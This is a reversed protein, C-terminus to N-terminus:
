GSRAIQNQWNYFYRFFTATVAEPRVIRVAISLEYTSARSASVQVESAVGDDIMWQLAEGAFEEARAPLNTVFKGRGLLWLKSGIYDPNTDEPDARDAWWGERSGDADPLVDESDARRNSFLSITVATELGDDRELDRDAVVVDGHGVTPDFVLRIDGQTSM